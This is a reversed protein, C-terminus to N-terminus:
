GFDHRRRRPDAPDRDHGLDLVSLGRQGITADSPTELNGSDDVARTEITTTPYGDAVWNYTWNVSQADAGTITAPHWSSGGDTSVEVGAVVGGGADTATGSITVKNGNQLNANPAPSTITSTPPTTDTSPSAPVLGSMLTTPQIGMDAFLNVTAQQM